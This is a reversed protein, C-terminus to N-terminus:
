RASGPCSRTCASAVRATRSRRSRRTATARAATASASARASAGRDRPEDVGHLLWAKRYSADTAACATSCSSRARRSSTCSSARSATSSRRSTRAPRTPRPTTTTAPRAVRGAGDPLPGVPRADEALGRPQAGLELLAVLGHAPRRRQGGDWKNEGWFFTEGPQYVLLTNHAVTRRYYNLYHPSETDTYDAGSDIALHGKRYIVFHAADLHDHKAFYPGCALEIWTSDPKWGDRLVLHGIGPFLRHRPLEAATTTAPDRPVVEPDDWLFQLVPIRWTAPSGAARACSCAAYPDKFRHVAYGLM